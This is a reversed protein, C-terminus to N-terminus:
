HKFKYEDYYQIGLTRAREFDDQSLGSKISALSDKMMDLYTENFQNSPTNAAATFCWAYAQVLDVRLNWGYQYNQCLQYQSSAIGDTAAQELWYIGQEPNKPVGKGQLYFDAVRSKAIPYNADAAKKYWFFALSPDQLVGIRGFDYLDGLTFQAKVDGADAASRLSEVSWQSLDYTAFDSAKVIPSSLALAMAFCCVRLTSIM